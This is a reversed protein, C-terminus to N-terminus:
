FDCWSIKISCNFNSTLTLFLPLLEFPLIQLSPFTHGLTNMGPFLLVLAV